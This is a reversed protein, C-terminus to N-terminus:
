PKECLKRIPTTMDIYCIIVYMPISSLFKNYTHERDEVYIDIKERERKTIIM